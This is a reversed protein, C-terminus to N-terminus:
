NQSGSVVRWAEGDKKFKITYKVSVTPAESAVFSAVITATDAEITVTKYEKVALDMSKENLWTTIAPTFQSGDPPPPGGCSYLLTFLALFLSLFITRPLATM